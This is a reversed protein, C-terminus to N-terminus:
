ESPTKFSNMNSFTEEEKEGGMVAVLIGVAGEMESGRGTEVMSTMMSEHDGPRGAM